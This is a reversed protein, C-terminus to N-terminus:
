DGTKLCGRKSRGKPRVCASFPAASQAGVFGVNQRAASATALDELGYRRFYRYHENWLYMLLAFCAVFPPFERLVNVLGAFDRPAETSVVLLTLAFGFVADSLGELRSSGRSRWRFDTEHRPTLPLRDRFRRRPM